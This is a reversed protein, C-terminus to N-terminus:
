RRVTLLLGAVGSEAAADALSRQTVWTLQARNSIELREYIRELHSEITRQALVLHEAIERNRAGRAVM